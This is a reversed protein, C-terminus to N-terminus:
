GKQAENVKMLRSLEQENFLGLVAQMRRSEFFDHLYKSAHHTRATVALNNERSVRRQQQIMDIGFLYAHKLPIILPVDLNVVKRLHGVDALAQLEKHQSLEDVVFALVFEDLFDAFM